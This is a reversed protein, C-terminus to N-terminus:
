YNDDYTDPEDPKEATFDFTVRESEIQDGNSLRVKQGAQLEEGNVTVADHGSIFGPRKFWGGTVAGATQGLGLPVDDGAGGISSRGGALPYRQGSMQIAANAPLGPRASWLLWAGGLALAGLSGMRAIRAWDTPTYVEATMTVPLRYGEDTLEANEPLFFAADPNPRILLVGSIAHEGDRLGQMESAPVSVVVAATTLGSDLRVVEQPVSGNVQFEGAMGEISSEDVVFAPEFTISADAGNFFQGPLEANWEVNGAPDDKTNVKQSGLEFPLTVDMAVAPTPTPPVPTPTPTPEPTPTPPVTPTPAPTPPPPVTLTVKFTSPVLFVEADETSATVVVEYTGPSYAESNGSLVWELPLGDGTLDGGAPSFQLRLDVPLGDTNASLKLPVPSSLDGSVACLRHNVTGGDVPVVGLNDQPIALRIERVPSVQGSAEEVVEIDGETKLRERNPVEVGLAIYKVFLFPQDSRYAKIKGLLDDVSPNGNADRDGPGNGIGDTYLLITQVHPRVDESAMLSLEDMAATMASTIHTFGQDPVLGDVYAKANDRGGSDDFSFRRVSDPNIPNGFPLIAVNSGRALSDLFLKASEQVDGFIVPGTGDPVGDLNRDDNMSGSVDILIVYDYVPGGILNASEAGSAEGEGPVGVPPCTAIDVAPSSEQAGIVGTSPAGAAIMMTIFLAITSLVRFLGRLDPASTPV